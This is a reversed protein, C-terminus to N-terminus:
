GEMLAIKKSEKLNLKNKQIPNVIQYIIFFCELYPSIKPTM